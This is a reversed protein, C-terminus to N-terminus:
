PTLTVNSYNAASARQRNAPLLVARHEAVDLSTGPMFLEGPSLLVDAAVDMRATVIVTRTRPVLWM